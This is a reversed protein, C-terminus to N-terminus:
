WRKCAVMRAGGSTHCRGGRPGGGGEQARVQGGRPRVAAGRAPGWRLGGAGDARLRTASLLKLNFM